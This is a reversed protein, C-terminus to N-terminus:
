VVVGALLRCVAGPLARESTARGLSPFCATASRAARSDLTSLFSRAWPSGCASVQMSTRRASVWPPPALTRRGTARNILWVSAWVPTARRDQPPPPTQWRALRGGGFRNLVDYTTAPTGANLLVPTLRLSLKGDGFGFKMEMPVETATLRSMGSEGQRSRVVTGVSFEPTRNQEIDRIDARLEVVQAQLSGPAPAAQVERAGAAAATAGPKAAPPSTPTPTVSWASVIPTVAPAAASAAYPELAVAAGAPGSPQLAPVASGQLLPQELPQPAMSLVPASAPMFSRGSRNGPLLAGKELAALQGRIERDDPRLRLYAQFLPASTADSEVWALAQRWSELAAAGVNRDKAIQLLQLIGERRTADCYILYQALTLRAQSSAPSDLVRQELSQRVEQWSPGGSPAATQCGTQTWASSAVTCLAGFLISQRRLTM